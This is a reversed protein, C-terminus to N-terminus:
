ETRRCKGLRVFLGRKRLETHAVQRFSNYSAYVKPLAKYIQLWSCRRKRAAAVAEWEADTLRSYLSKEPLPQEM